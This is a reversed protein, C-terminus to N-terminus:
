AYFVDNIVQNFYVNDFRSSLKELEGDTMTASNHVLDYLDQSHCRLIEAEKACRPQNVYMVRLVDTCRIIGSLEWLKTNLM